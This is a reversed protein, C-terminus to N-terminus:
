APRRLPVLVVEVTRNAILPDAGAADATVIDNDSAARLSIVPVNPHTFLSLNVANGIAQDGADNPHLHDGSDNAPLYETPASPNHTADDQDVVGDCGSGSSRVYTNYAERATEGTSNWYSAGQYPTLTSCIFKDRRDHLTSGM